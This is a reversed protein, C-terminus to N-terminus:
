SNSTESIQDISALVEIIVYEQYGALKKEAIKHGMLILDANVLHKLQKLRKETIKSDSCAHEYLEIAYGLLSMKGKFHQWLKDAILLGEPDYDGWYYWPGELLELVKFDVFHLQGSTCILSLEPRLESLATFVAPNEVCVVTGQNTLSKIKDVHALNKLTLTLPEKRLYFANWGYQVEGSFAELGYTLVQRNGIDVIVGFTSLLRQKGFTDKPVQSDSIDSLYYILLRYLSKDTDLAHPDKTALAALVPLSITKEQHSTRTLLSDIEALALLDTKLTLSSQGYRMELYRGISNKSSMKLAKNLWLSVRDNSLAKNVQEFFLSQKQKQSLQVDKNSVLDENFYHVLVDEIVMDAFKTEIFAKIFKSCSLRCQEGQRYNSKILGNIFVAEEASLTLEIRGALRGYSKYKDKLIKMFRYAGIKSKLYTACEYSIDM